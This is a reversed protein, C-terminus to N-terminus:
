DGSKEILEDYINFVDLFAGEVVFITTNVNYLEKPIRIMAYYDIYNDDIFVRYKIIYTGVIGYM